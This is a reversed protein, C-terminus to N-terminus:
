GSVLDANCIHITLTNESFLQNGTYLRYKLQVNLEDEKRDLHYTEAEVEFAIKGFPTLYDAVTKEGPIFLFQGAVFGSKSLRMETESLFLLNDTATGDEDLECYLIKHSGNEFCYNGVTKTLIAEPESGANQIGLLFIQIDQKM